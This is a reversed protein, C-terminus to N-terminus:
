NTLLTKLASTIFAKQSKVLKVEKNDITATDQAQKKHFLSNVYNFHYNFLVTINSDLCQKVVTTRYNCLENEFERVDTILENLQSRAIKRCKQFLKVNEIDCNLLMNTLIDDDYESISASPKHIPLWEGPPVNHKKAKLMDALKTQLQEWDISDVVLAYVDKLISKKSNKVYNKIQKNMSSIINTTLEHYHEKFLTANDLLEFIRAQQQLMYDLMPSNAENSADTSTASLKQKPKINTTQEDM